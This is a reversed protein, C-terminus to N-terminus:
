IQGTQLNHHLIWDVASGFCRSVFQCGFRGATALNRKASNCVRTLNKAWHQCPNQKVSPLVELKVRLMERVRETVIPVKYDFIVNAITAIASSCVTASIYTKCPWEDEM